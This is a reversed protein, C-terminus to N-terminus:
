PAWTRLRMFIDVARNPIWRVLLLALLAPLNAPHQRVSRSFLAAARGHENRTLFGGGAYLYFLSKKWSSLSQFYPSATFKQLVSETERNLNSWDRSIGAQHFRYHLGPEALHEVNVLGVLRFWYDWDALIALNTDFGGIESIAASKVMVSGIAFLNQNLFLWQNREPPGLARRRDQKVPLEWYQKSGDNLERFCLTDSFVAGASPHRELLGAQKELIGDVLLDDADLFLVYEGSALLVGNNRAASVGANEQYHYRVPRGFKRVVQGTRDTSGDDM